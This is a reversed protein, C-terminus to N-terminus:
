CIALRSSNPAISESSPRGNRQGPNAIAQRNRRGTAFDDRGRRTAVKADSRRIWIGIAVGLTLQVAGILCGGLVLLLTGSVM